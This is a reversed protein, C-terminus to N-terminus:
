NRLLGACLAPHISPVFTNPASPPSVSAKPSPNGSHIAAQKNLEMLKANIQEEMAPLEYLKSLHLLQFPATLTM